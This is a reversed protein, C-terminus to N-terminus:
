PKSGEKPQTPRAGYQRVAENIVAQRTWDDAIDKPDLFILGRTRWVARAQAKLAEPPNPASPLRDLSSRM